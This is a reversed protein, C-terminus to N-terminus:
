GTPGPYHAFGKQSTGNAKDFDGGVAVGRPTITITWPGFIGNVQALWPSTAGDAVYFSALHNRDDNTGTLKSFHGGIYVETATAAMAQVDGGSKVIYEYNNDRGLGVDYAYNNGNTTMFFWRNGDPTLAMAYVVGGQVQVPNFSTATGTLAHLEAAAPRGVGAIVTFLGGVYLKTGDPSVALARVSNNPRPTFGTDLAGTDQSVAALRDIEVGSIRAFTGGIYLRGARTALARVGNSSTQALWGPIM